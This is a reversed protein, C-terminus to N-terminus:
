VPYKFKHLSSKLYEIETNKLSKLHNKNLFFNLLIENLEDYCKELNARDCMKYAGCWGQIMGNIKKLSDERLDSNKLFVLTNGLKQKFVGFKKKSPQFHANIGIQVGLFSPSEEFSVAKCKEENYLDLNLHIAKLIKRARRYANYAEKKSNCLVMFDDIYRFVVYGAAAM